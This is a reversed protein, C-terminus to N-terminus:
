CTIEGKRANNHNLKVMFRDFFCCTHLTFLVTAACRNAIDTVRVDPM